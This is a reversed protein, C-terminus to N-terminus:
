QVQIRFFRNTTLVVPETHANAGSPAITTWPGTVTPAWQLQGSGSWQLNVSGGSITPALFRAEPSTPTIGLVGLYTFHNGNNNNPGPALSITIEGSANPQVASATATATVNNAVNLAATTTGSGTITYQTERNDGVGTRSAYFMLSYARAPNLGTLKFSPFINTLGSFGETNGFLSDRTADTPFQSAAVTGNENVGNFRAIMSLGITTALNQTTVLGSLQGLDSQGITGTVNNWYRIPDDVPAAAYETTTAGGFDILVMQSEPSSVLGSANTSVIENGSIDTLFDVRVTFAGSIQQGGLDLSVCRGEPNLTATLPVIDGNGENVVYNGAEGSSGPTMVENFCIDITLGNASGVSVVVPPNTDTVVRLTANSSTASFVLNSVNVSFLSGNMDLTVSPISYTLQNAGDIPVSNSFWQVFHPPAGTVASTFTATQFEAVRQNAPEVTFIIPTQPPVADIKLVGLYTFHNGNNNNATPALSITIEGAASAFIGPLTAVTTENNSANLAVLNSSAGTVTYGTERNDGVGTRSAYFTFDYATAPDLGTFKFSPFINSVGNFTETNGFLSDRTAEVPFQTAATTGVANAGNFRSLMVLGFSSPANASTVINTLQGTDSTGIAEPVNNWYNIPDDPAAAHETPTAAAGFDFLFTQAFGSTGSFVAVVVMSGILKLLSSVARPRVFYCTKM